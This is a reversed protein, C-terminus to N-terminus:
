FGVATELILHCVCQKGFILSVSPYEWENGDSMQGSVTISACFSLHYDLYRKMPGIVHLVLCCEQQIMEM